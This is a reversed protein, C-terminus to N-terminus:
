PSILRYGVPFPALGHWPEHVYVVHLTSNCSRIYSLSVLCINLSLILVTHAVFPIPNVLLRALDEAQNVSRVGLSGVCNVAFGVTQDGVLDILHLFARLRSSSRLM